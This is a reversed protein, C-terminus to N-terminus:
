GNIKLRETLEALKQHDPETPRQNRAELAGYFDDANDSPLIHAHAHAVEFGEITIVAKRVGFAEKAKAAVKKVTAFFAQYDEDPLKEFDDVQNKTTVVVHGEVLPRIDMFAITKDDEYVKHCPIEGKIIQTFVSDEM